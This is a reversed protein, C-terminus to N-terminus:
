TPSPRLRVWPEGSTVEAPELANLEAGFRYALETRSRVDLKRYASRLHAEVTKVSVLLQEAIERNEFGAAAATAAALERATLTVVRSPEPGDVLTARVEAAYAAAGAATFGELARRARAAADDVRAAGALVNAAARDIRARTFPDLDRRGDAEALVADIETASAVVAAAHLRYGTVRAGDGVEAIQEAAYARAADVDGAALSLAALEPLVTFLGSTRLGRDLQERRAAAFVERARRPDRIRVAHGLAVRALIGATGWDHADAAAVAELARAEAGDIGLCAEVYALDAAVQTRGFEHGISGLISGAESYDVLAHHLDGRSLAARGANFRLWGIASTAGAAIAAEIGTRAAHAAVDVRDALLLATTLPTLLEPVGLAACGPAVSELADALEADPPGVLSTAASQMVICMLVSPDFVEHQRHEIAAFARAAHRGMTPVDLAIFSAAGMFCEIAARGPDGFGSGDPVVSGPGALEAAGIRIVVRHDGRAAASALRAFVLGAHAVPDVMGALARDYLPQDDVDAATAAAAAEAYRARVLDPDTTREAAAVLWRMALAQDGQVRARRGVRALDAAMSENPGDTSQAEHWLREDSGVVHRALAAHLDRRRGVSAGEVVVSGFVPHRLAIRAGQDVLVDAVIARDLGTPDCRLEALTSRVVARDVGADLAVVEVASTADPGLEDLCQRVVQGIVQGVPPVSRADLAQMESDPLLRTMELLALPNGASRAYLVDVVSDALGGARADLLERAEARTLGRLALTAWDRTWGPDPPTRIAIVILVADADLRAFAFRLADQSAADVWQWDDIVVLLPISSAHASLLSLVGAGIDLADVAAPERRALAIEIARRQGEPLAALEEEVGHFLAHLGGFAVGVDREYGAARLVTFGAANAVLWALLESKGSGVEGTVSVVTADAGAARGMAAQLADLETTRGVLM